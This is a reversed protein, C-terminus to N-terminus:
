RGSWKPSPTRTRVRLACRTPASSSRRTRRSDITAFPVTERRRSLRSGDHRQHRRRCPARPTPAGKRASGRNQARRRGPRSRRRSRLVRRPMPGRRASKAVPWHARGCTEQMFCKRFATTLSSAAPAVFRRRTLVPWSNLALLDELEDLDSSRLDELTDAVASVAARYGESVNAGLWMQLERSGEAM